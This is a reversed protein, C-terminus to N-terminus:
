FIWRSTSLWLDDFADVPVLAQPLPEPDPWVIENEVRGLPRSNTKELHDLISGGNQDIGLAETM